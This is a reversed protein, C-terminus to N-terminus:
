CYYEGHHVRSVNIKRCCPRNHLLYDLITKNKVKQEGGSIEHDSSFMQAVKQHTLM